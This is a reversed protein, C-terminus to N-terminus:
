RAVGHQGPAGMAAQRDFLHALEPVRKRAEDSTIINKGVLDMVAAEMTQMGAKGGVQM